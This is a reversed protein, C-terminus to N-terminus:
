GEDRMPDFFNFMLTHRAEEIKRNARKATDIAKIMTRIARAEHEFKEFADKEEATSFKRIENINAGVATNPVYKMRKFRPWKRGWRIRLNGRYLSASLNLPAYPYLETRLGLTLRMKEREIIEYKKIYFRAVLDSAWAHMTQRAQELDLNHQSLMLDRQRVNQWIPLPNKRGLSPTNLQSDEDDEEEFVEDEEEFDTM